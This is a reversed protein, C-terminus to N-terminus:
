REVGGEGAGTGTRSGARARRSAARARACARPGRRPPTPPARGPVKIVQGAALRSPNAIDNYKALIYFRFRDGMYAQAIKSLSDDRQVTYRFFTAGLETQADAKIQDLLKRALDNAPDLATAKELTARASRRTATRCCTSRRSRSSRRRRRRKRRRCAGAGAARRAGAGRGPAARGAEPAPPPPTACGAIVAAAIAARRCSALNRALYPQGHEIILDAIVGPLRKPGPPRFFLIRRRSEASHWCAGGRSENGIARIARRGPAHGCADCRSRRRRPAPSPTTATRRAPPSAAGSRSRRITTRRGQRRARGGAGGDPAAVGRGIRSRRARGGHRAEDIYEWFGDTCLLFADGGALAFAARAVAPEFNEEQGSRRSCGAASRRRACTRTGQPLRRRGHEARRQPGQDARRRQRDRFCYLRSDGLHGWAASRHNADVALVVATARMNALRTETEQQQMIARNASRSRRRSRRCRLMAAADQFWALTTSVALKSAVDGGGQGGAGDCVVCFCVGAGAWFGFADENAARGGPKSLCRSKSGCRRQAPRLRGRRRSAASPRSARRAGPVRAPIGRRVARPFRERAEKSIEGYLQASSTGCSRRALRRSSRTSWRTIRRAAARAGAPRLARPRRRAGLAHRGHLGAPAIRLDEYADAVARLPPM